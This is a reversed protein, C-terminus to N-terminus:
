AFFGATKAESVPLYGYGGRDRCNQFSGRFWSEAIAPRYQPVNVDKKRGATLELAPRLNLRAKNVYATSEL